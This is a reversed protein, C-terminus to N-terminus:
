LNLVNSGIDITYASGGSKYNLTGLTADASLSLNTTNSSGFSATGTPQAGGSWNAGSNFDNSPPNAKWTADQALVPSVFAAWALGAVFVRSRSVVFGVRRM